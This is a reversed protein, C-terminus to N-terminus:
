SASVKELSRISSLILIPCKQINPVTRCVCVRVTDIISEYDLSGTPNSCVYIVTFIIFVQVVFDNYWVDFYMM